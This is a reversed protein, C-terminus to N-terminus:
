GMCYVSRTGLSRVQLLEKEYLRLDEQVKRYDEENKDKKREADEVEKETLELQKLLRQEDDRARRKEGWRADSGGEKIKQKLQGLRDSCDALEAKLHAEQAHLSAAEARRSQLGLQLRRQELRVHQRGAMEDLPAFHKLQQQQLSCHM